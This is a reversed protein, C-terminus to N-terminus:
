YYSGTIEPEDKTGIHLVLSGIAMFVMSAIWLWYGEKYNTIYVMMGPKRDAIQDFLLFCLGVVLSALSYLLAKKPGKKVLSWAVWLLPNAYWTLGAISMIGGIAGLGVISLGSWHDGCANSTCFGQQTLSIIYLGVSIFLTIQTITNHTKTKM